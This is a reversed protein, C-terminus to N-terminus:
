SMYLFYTIISFFLLAVCIHTVKNINERFFFFLFVRYLIIFKKEFVLWLWPFIEFTCKTDNLIGEERQGWKYNQWQKPQYKFVKALLSFKGAPWTCEKLFVQSTYIDAGRIYPHISQDLHSPKLGPLYSARSQPRDGLDFTSFCPGWQSLSSM